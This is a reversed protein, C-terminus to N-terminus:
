MAPLAGTARGFSILARDLDNDPDLIIIRPPENKSSLDQNLLGPPNESKYVERGPACPLPDRFLYANSTRMIQWRGVMQGFLDREKILAKTIRNVWTLVNAFELAKIAEYVTDRNCEARMAIKEYSPFCRGDEDNHFGFVLVKLVQMTARTLPGWHQGKQKHRANYGRAYAMIRFKANRDLKFGKAPGFVKERKPRLAKSFSSM